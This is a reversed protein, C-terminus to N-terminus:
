AAGVAIDSLGAETLQTASGALALLHHGAGAAVILQSRLSLLNPLSRSPLQWVSHLTLFTERLCLVFFVFAVSKLCIDYPAAEMKINLEACNNNRFVKCINAYICAYIQVYQQKGLNKSACIQM